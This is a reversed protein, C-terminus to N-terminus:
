IFWIENGENIQLVDHYDPHAAYSYYHIRSHTHGCRMTRADLLENCNVICCEDCKSVFSWLVNEM